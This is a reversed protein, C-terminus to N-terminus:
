TILIGANAIKFVLDFDLAIAASYLEVYREIFIRVFEVIIQSLLSVSSVILLIKDLDSGGFKYIGYVNIAILIANLIYKFIRIIRKAINIKKNSKKYTILYNVFNITSLLSIIIYIILFTLNDISNYINYAYVGTFIIQVIINVALLIKNIENIMKSSVARTRQLVKM